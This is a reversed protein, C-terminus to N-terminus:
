LFGHLSVIEIVVRRRGYGGFDQFGHERDHRLDEAVGGTDMMISLGGAGPKVVCAALDRRQEMAGIAFDHEGATSGFGVIEGYKPNATMDNRRGDFMGGHEGGGILEGDSLHRDVVAADDIGVRDAVGDTGVGPQDGDHVDVVFETGNLRNFFNAANRAFGADGEVRVADLRCSFDGDIDPGDLGVKVGDATVFDIRGFACAREENAFAELEARLHEASTM